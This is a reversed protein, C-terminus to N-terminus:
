PYEASFIQVFIEFKEMLLDSFNYARKNQILATSNASMLKWTGRLTILNCVINSLHVNILLTKM